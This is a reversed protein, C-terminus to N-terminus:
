ETARTVRPGAWAGMDDGCVLVCQRSRPDLRGHLRRTPGVLCLTNLPYIWEKYIIFFSEIVAPPTRM